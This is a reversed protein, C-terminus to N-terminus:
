KEKAGGDPVGEIRIKSGEINGGAAVGHEAQASPGGDRGSGQDFYTFVTWAAVAVAAIAAGALSVVKQNGSRQLWRWM